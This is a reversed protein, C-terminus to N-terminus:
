ITDAHPPHATGSPAGSPWRWIRAMLKGPPSGSPELGESVRYILGQGSGREPCRANPSATITGTMILVTNPNNAPPWALPLAAEIQARCRQM